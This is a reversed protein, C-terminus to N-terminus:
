ARCRRPFRGCLIITESCCKRYPVLDMLAAPAGTHNAQAIEYYFKGFNRGSATGSFLQSAITRMSDTAYEISSAPRGEGSGRLM